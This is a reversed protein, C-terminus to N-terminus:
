YLLTDTKVYRFTEGTDKFTLTLLNKNIQYSLKEPEGKSYIFLENGSTKYKYHKEDLLARYVVAGDENFTFYTNVGKNTKGKWTGSIKNKSDHSIKIMIDTLRSTEGSLYLTDNRINFKSLVINEKRDNIIKLTDGDLIYHDKSYFERHFVLSDKTIQLTERIGDRTLELQKWNGVLLTQTQFYLFSFILFLTM